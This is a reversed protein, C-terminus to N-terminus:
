KAQYTKLEVCDRSNISTLNSKKDSLANRVNAFLSAIFKLDIVQRAGEAVNQDNLVDSDLRAESPTKGEKQALQSRLLAKAQPILIKKLREEAKDVERQAISELNLWELIQSSQEGLDQTVAGSFKAVKEGDEILQDVHKAYWLYRERLKM